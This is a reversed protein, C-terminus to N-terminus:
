STPHPPRQTGLCLTCPVFFLSIQLMASFWRLVFSFPLLLAAAEFPALRVLALSHTESPSHAFVSLVFLIQRVYFHFVLWVAYAVHNSRLSWALLLWGIMFSLDQLTGRIAPRWLQQAQLATTHTKRLAEQKVTNVVTMYLGISTSATVTM